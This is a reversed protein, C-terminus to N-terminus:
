ADFIQPFLFELVKFLKKFFIWFNQSSFEEFYQLKWFGGFQRIKIDIQLLM